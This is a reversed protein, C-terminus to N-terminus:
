NDYNKFIDEKTNHPLYFSMCTHCLILVFLPHFLEWKQSNNKNTLFKMRTKNHIIRRKIFIYYKLLVNGKPQVGDPGRINGGMRAGTMCLSREGELWTFNLDVLNEGERVEHKVWLDTM